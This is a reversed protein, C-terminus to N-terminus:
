LTAVRGPSQLTPALYDKTCGAINTLRQRPLSHSPHLGHLGLITEGRKETTTSSQSEKLGMPIASLYRLIRGDRTRDKGVSEVVLFNQASPTTYRRNYVCM